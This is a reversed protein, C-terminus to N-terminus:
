GIVRLDGAAVLTASKGLTFLPMAAMAGTGDPDWALTGAVTDHLFQGFTQTPATGIVFHGEAALDAGKVLGGGFGAASVEIRDIGSAFDRLLDGGEEPAAYRFRDADPGGTLDDAGAGGILVDNGRGGLLTDNGGAGRLTNATTTGVTDLDLILNDQGNGSGKRAGADLRLVEVHRPMSFSATATITDYGGLADEVIRDRADDVLYADDGGLGTMTDIGSGGDLLDARASGFLVDAGEGGELTDGLVGAAAVSTAILVDNGGLGQLRDAWATGFLNDAAATGALQAGILLDFSDSFSADGDSATIRIALPGTLGAPPTGTLRLTAADFSLWAPLPAGNALSATFILTDGDADAFAGPAIDLVLPAGGLGDGDALAQALAPARNVLGLLTVGSAGPLPVALGTGGPTGDSLWLEPSPNNGRFLFSQDTLATIGADAWLAGLAVTGGVSGDTIWLEDGVATFAVRGDPLSVFDRLNGGSIGPVIEKLMLTGDATGDTIWLERGTVGDSATFVVRGDGLRARPFDGGTFAPTVGPAIEEVMQTGATTGDTVWLEYASAPTRAAFVVRGDGLAIFGVPRSDGAPDIDKLLVTGAATGDTIWVERMAPGDNAQFVLRSDGLAAFEAPESGANPSTRIDKLLVTGATTGDTIWLEPGVGLGGDAAFVVRDDGIPTFRGPLFSSSFGRLQGTGAVTGDTVWLDDLATFLLRGDPLRGFGTPAIAPAPLGPLLNLLAVTGAATGDSVWLTRGSADDGAVLVMRGDGLTAFGGQPTPTSFIGAVPATGPATGDTAYLALGGTLPSVASFLVQRPM